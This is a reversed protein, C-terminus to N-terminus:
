KSGFKKRMLGLGAVVGGLLAISSAVEPVTPPPPNSSPNFMSWSTIYMGSSTTGDVLNTGISNNPSGPVALVNAPIEITTNVIGSIDWVEAGANPGDWRGVLYTYGQSGITVEVENNNNPDLKVAGQTTLVPNNNPDAQALTGFNNLSRVVYTSGPTGTSAGPTLALIDNVDTAEDIAQGGNGIDGYIDEGLVNAGSYGVDLITNANASVAMAAAVGVVAAVKTIITKGM